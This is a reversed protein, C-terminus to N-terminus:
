SSVQRAHGTLRTWHPWDTGACRHADVEAVTWTEGGYTFQDGVIPAVGSTFFVALWRVVLIGAETTEVKEGREDHVFPRATGGGVPTLADAMEGAVFTAFRSAYGAWAAGNLAVTLV